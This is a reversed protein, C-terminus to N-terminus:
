SKFDKKSYKYELMQSTVGQLMAELLIIATPTAMGYPYGNEIM